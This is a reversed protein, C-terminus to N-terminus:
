VSVRRNKWHKTRTKQHAMHRKVAYCTNREEKVKRKNKNNEKLYSSHFFLHMGNIISVPIRLFHPLGEVKPRHLAHKTFRCNCHTVVGQLVPNLTKCSSTFISKKIKKWWEVVHFSSESRLSLAACCLLLFFLLLYIIYTLCQQTPSLPLGTHLQCTGPRQQELMM